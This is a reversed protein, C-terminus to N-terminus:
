SKQQTPRMTGASFFVIPIRQVNNDAKALSLFTQGDSQPMMMYCLIIDPARSRAMEYGVQGNEATLVHYHNILLMEETNERIEPNDEIVLVTNM